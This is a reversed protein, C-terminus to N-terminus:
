KYLSKIMGWSNNESGISCGGESAVFLGGLVPVMQYPSCTEVNLGDGVLSLPNGVIKLTWGYPADALSLIQISGIWVFSQSVGECGETFQVQMGNAIDGIIIMNENFIQTMYLVQSSSKVIMFEAGHIGDPGDESAIYMLSLYTPTLPAIDADCDTAAQSTYFGLSGNHAFVSAACLVLVIAVISLRKM